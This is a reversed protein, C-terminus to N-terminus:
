NQAKLKVNVEATRVNNSDDTASFSIVSTAGPTGVVSWECSYTGNKNDTIPTPIGDILLKADIIKGDKDKASMTINVKDGGIIVTSGQIPGSISVDPATGEAPRNLIFEDVDAYGYDNGNVAIIKVVYKGPTKGKTNFDIYFPEQTQVFTQGNVDFTVSKIYGGDEDKASATIHIVDNVDYNTSLDSLSSSVSSAIVGAASLDTVPEYETQSDQKLAADIHGWSKIYYGVKTASTGSINKVTKDVEITAYNGSMLGAAPTWAKDDPMYAVLTFLDEGEPPMVKLISDNYAEIKDSTEITGQAVSLFWVTKGEVPVSKLKLEVIKESDEVNRPSGEGAKKCSTFTAVGFVSALSLGVIFKRM